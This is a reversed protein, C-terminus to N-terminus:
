EEGVRREESRARFAATGITRLVWTLGATNHSNWLFRDKPAVWGRSLALNAVFLRRSAPLAWTGRLDSSCVDSSWDRKSRTHRRRSSFFFHCSIRRGRHLLYM